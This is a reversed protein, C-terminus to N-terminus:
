VNIERLKYTIAIISVAYDLFKNKKSVRSFRKDGRSCSRRVSNAIIRISPIIAAAALEPSPRTNIVFLLVSLLGNGTRGAQRASCLIEQRFLTSATQKPFLPGFCHGRDKEREWESVWEKCPRASVSRRKRNEVGRQEETKRGYQSGELSRQKRGAFFFKEATTMVLIWDDRDSNYCIVFQLIASFKLKDRGFNMM